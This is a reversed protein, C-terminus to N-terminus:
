KRYNKIKNLEHYFKLGETDESVLWPCEIYDINLSVLLEAIELRDKLDYSTNASQEGERITCDYLLPHKM